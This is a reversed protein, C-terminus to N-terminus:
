REQKKVFAKQMKIGIRVVSRKYGLEQINNVQNQASLMQTNDNEIVGPTEIVSKKAM